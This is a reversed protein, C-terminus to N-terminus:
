ETLVEDKIREVNCNHEKYCEKDCTKMGEALKVIRQREEHRAKDEDKVISEIGQKFGRHSAKEAIQTLASNLFSKVNDRESEGAYIEVCKFMEDFKREFEKVIEGIRQTLPAPSLTATSGAADGSQHNLGAVIKGQKKDKPLDYPNVKHFCEVCILWNEADLMPRNCKPCNKETKNKKFKNPTM